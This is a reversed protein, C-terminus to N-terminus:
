RVGGGRWWIKSYGTFFVNVIIM